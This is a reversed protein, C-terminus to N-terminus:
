EEKAPGRQKKEQKRVETQSYRGVAPAPSVDEEKASPLRAVGALPGASAWESWALWVAM